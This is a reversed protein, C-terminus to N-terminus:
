FAVAPSITAQMPTLFLVYVAVTGLAHKLLMEPSLPRDLFMELAVGLLRVNYEEQSTSPQRLLEGGGASCIIDPALAAKFAMFSAM